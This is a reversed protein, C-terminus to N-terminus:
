QAAAVEFQRHLQENVRHTRIWDVFTPWITLIIEHELDVVSRQRGLASRLRSREAAIHDSDPCTEAPFNPEGGGGKAM